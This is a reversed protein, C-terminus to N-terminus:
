PQCRQCPTYGMGIAEEESYFYIKNKEKMDTVSQCSPLHYKKSNKNGIYAVDRDAVTSSSSKIKKSTSTANAGIVISYDSGNSIFKISGHKDTRFISAYLHSCRLLTEQTPHGYDNNKGVSIVIYTPQVAALFESCSSTASGHHALKLVDAQLDIGSALM